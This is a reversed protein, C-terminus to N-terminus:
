LPGRLSWFQSENDTDSAPAISSEETNSLAELIELIENGTNGMKLMGILVNRSM